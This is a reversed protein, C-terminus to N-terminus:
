PISVFDDVVYIVGNSARLQDVVAANGAEVPSRAANVDITAGAANRYGGSQLEEEEPASPCTPAGSNPSCGLIHHDLLARAQVPEGGIEIAVRFSATGTTLDALAEDGLGAFVDDTPAFLRRDGMTFYRVADAGSEIVCLLYDFRGDSDLVALVHDGDYADHSCERDGDESRRAGGAAQGDAGDDSSDEGCAGLSAAVLLSSLFVLSWQPVARTAGDTRRRRVLTSAASGNGM